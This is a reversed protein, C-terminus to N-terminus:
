RHRRKFYVLLGFGTILVVITVITAMVATSTVEGFVPQEITFNITPSAGTNGDEDTVYVTLSHSGNSLGTLTSNGSVEVATNGDLVYNMISISKNVTFVLPINTSSYSEQQPSIVMVKPAQVYYPDPTGYSFPLYQENTAYQTITDGFHSADLKRTYGGITYLADNVVAVTFDLRRTPMNPGFTWTDTLPNYTKLTNSKEGEWLDWTEGFVYIRKAANVGTTAAAAGYGASSPSPAGEGWTDTKPDYILHLPTRSEMSYGDIFHIKNDLVATEFDHGAIPMPAASTWSDTTPDYVENLTTIADSYSVNEAIYGGILYIKGNVVNAQLGWRATPMSTKNTWMDTAPDYVEIIDTITKGNDNIATIGGMCYIKNQYAVIAFESRPTPMSAKMTWTDTAPNYEENTGVLSGSYPWTGKRADGGIAYIKDEVVAVGLDSRAVHMSAKETWSNASAASTAETVIICGAIVATM